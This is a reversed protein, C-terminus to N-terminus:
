LIINVKYVTRDTSNDKISMLEEELAKIRNASAEEQKKCLVSNELVIKEIAAM